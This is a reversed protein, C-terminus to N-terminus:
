ETWFRKLKLQYRKRSNEIYEAFAPLMSLMLLGQEIGITYLADTGFRKRVEDFIKLKIISPYNKKPDIKSIGNQKLVKDGIPGLGALVKITLALSAGPITSRIKKTM